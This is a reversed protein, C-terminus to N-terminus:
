RAYFRKAGAETSGTLDMYVKVMKQENAKKEEDAKTEKTPDTPKKTEDM